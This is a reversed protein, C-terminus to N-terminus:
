NQDWQFHMLDAKTQAEVTNPLTLLLYFMRGSHSIEGSYSELLISFKVKEFVLQKYSFSNVKGLHSRM